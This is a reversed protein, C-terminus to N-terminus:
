KYATDLLRRRFVADASGARERKLAALTVHQDVVRDALPNPGDTQGALDTGAISLPWRRIWGTWIRHAADQDDIKASRRWLDAALVHVLDVSWHASPDGVDPAPPIWNPPQDRVEGRDVLMAATWAFTVAAWTGAAENFAPASGIAELRRWHDQERLRDITAIRDVDSSADRHLPSAVTARGEGLLEDIFTALPNM